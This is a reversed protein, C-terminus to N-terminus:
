VTYKKFNTLYCGIRWPKFTTDLHIFQGNKYYGSKPFFYLSIVGTASLIWFIVLAILQGSSANAINLANLSAENTKVMEYATKIASAFGTNPNVYTAISSLSATYFTYSFYGIAWILASIKSAFEPSTEKLGLPISFIIPQVGWILAGAIFALIFFFVLAVTNGYGTLYIMTTAVILVVMGTGFLFSAVQNRKFITKLFKNTTFYSLFYGAAFVVTFLPFVFSYKTTSFGVINSFTSTNAEINLQVLFQANANSQEILVRFPQSLVFVAILLGIGFFTYFPLYSKNTLLQWISVKNDKFDQKQKRVLVEVGFIWYLVLLVISSATLLSLISTWVAQQVLVKYVGPITFFINTLIAGVSFLASNLGLFKPRKDAPMKAIVSYGYTVLTTGGIGLFVRFIVFLSYGLVATGDSAVPSGGAISLSNWAANQAIIIYPFSLAMIGLVSMVAYKHGFKALLFGAMISGIGRGLTIIWDTASFALLNNAVPGFAPTWAPRFYGIAYWQAVFLVYGLAIISWTLAYKFQNQNVEQNAKNALLSKFSM